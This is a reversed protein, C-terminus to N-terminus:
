STIQYRRYQALLNEVEPLLQMQEIRSAVHTKAGDSLGTPLLRDKVEFEHLVQMLWAQQLSLAGKVPDILAIASEPKVSPYGETPNGDADTPELTEYWFGGTYTCQMLSTADAMTVFFDILGITEDMQIITDTIDVWPDQATARMELKTVTEFPYRPLYYHTRNATFRCVDGVVRAFKRNCYSQFREAVGRAIVQLVSDYSADNQLAQPLVFGKVDAFNGLGLDM